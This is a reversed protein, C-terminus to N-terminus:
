NERCGGASSKQKEEAFVEYIAIVENETLKQIHGHEFELLRFRSIKARYALESTSFASQKRMKTLEYKDFEM